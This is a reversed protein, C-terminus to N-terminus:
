TQRNRRVTALIIVPAPGPPRPGSTDARLREISRKLRRVQRPTATRLIANFLEIAEQVKQAAAARAAPDQIRALAEAIAPDVRLDPHQTSDTETAM